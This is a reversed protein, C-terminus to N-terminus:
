QRPWTAPRLVHTFRNRDDVAIMRPEVPEDSLCFAAVIITDGPQCHHAAAGKLIVPWHAAATSYCVNGIEIWEHCEM